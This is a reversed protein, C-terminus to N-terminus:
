TKYYKGSEKVKKKKKKSHCFYPTHRLHKQDELEQVRQLQEKFAVAGGFLNM